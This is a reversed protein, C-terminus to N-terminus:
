FRRRSIQDFVAKVQQRTEDISVGTDIIFDARRRKEEDPVQKAIIAAFKEATMGPRSLVRVRQVDAPASVVVVCDFAAAAGIEFLLPIDLVALRAGARGAAKLFETRDELVLPHVIEELTKLAKDDGLVREALIARDVVGDRIADPFVAGVPGVAKGGHAYLRHVADDANWTAAGLDAFMAAVTSKGMGISGTLAAHIM